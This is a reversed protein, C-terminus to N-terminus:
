QLFRDHLTKTNIHQHEENYRNDEALLLKLKLQFNLGLIFRILIM